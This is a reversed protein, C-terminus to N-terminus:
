NAGLRSLMSGMNRKAADALRRAGAKSGGAAVHPTLILNPATWLSHQSPLPEPHVVDLAAGALHGSRLQAELVAMDVLEGRAVNVFYSDPRLVGFLEEGFLGHTEATLAITLIVLDSAAVVEKIASLPKVPVNGDCGTSPPTRTVVSVSAGFAKVLQTVAKGIAGYGIVAVTRDELSAMQSVM